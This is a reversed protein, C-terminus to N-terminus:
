INLIDISYFQINQIINFFQNNCKDKRDKKEFLFFRVFIVADVRLWGGNGIDRNEEKGVMGLDEKSGVYAACLDENASEVGHTAPEGLM